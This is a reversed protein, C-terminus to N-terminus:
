QVGFAAFIFGGVSDFCHDGFATGLERLPNRDTMRFQVITQVIDLRYAFM